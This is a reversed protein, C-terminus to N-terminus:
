FSSESKITSRSDAIHGYIDSKTHYLSSSIRYESNIISYKLSGNIALRFM